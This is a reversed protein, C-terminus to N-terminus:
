RVIFEHNTQKNAALFELSNTLFGAIAGCFAAAILIDSTM